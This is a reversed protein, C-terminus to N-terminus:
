SAIQISSPQARQEARAAFLIALETHRERAAPTVARDAARQEEAARRLYYRRDSEM